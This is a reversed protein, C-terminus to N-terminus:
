LCMESWDYAYVQRAIEAWHQQSRLKVGTGRMAGDGPLKTSSSVALMWLCPLKQPLCVDDRIYNLADLVSWPAADAGWVRRALHGYTIISGDAACQKLIEFVERTYMPMEQGSRTGQSAM